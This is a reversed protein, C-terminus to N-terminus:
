KVRKEENAIIVAELRSKANLKRYISNLHAKVTAISIMLTIAIEKNSLGQCLLGLVEEEKATLSAMLNEKEKIVKEKIRKIKKGLTYDKFVLKMIEKDIYIDGNYVTKIADILEQSTNMLVFGKINHGHIERIIRIDSELTILIVKSKEKVVEDMELLEKYPCTSYDLLIIHLRKEKVFNISEEEESTEGIITIIRNQELALRIASKFLPRKEIILVSIKNDM